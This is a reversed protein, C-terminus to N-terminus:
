LLLCVLVECPVGMAVWQLLQMALQPLMLLLLVVVVVVQVLLLLFLVLLLGMPVWVQLLQLELQM